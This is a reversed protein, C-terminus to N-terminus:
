REACLCWPSATAPERQGEIVRRCNKGAEDCVCLFVLGAAPLTPCAMTHPYITPQAEDVSLPRDSAAVAITVYSALAVILVQRRKREAM